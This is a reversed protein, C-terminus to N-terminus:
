DDLFRPSNAKELRRTLDVLLLGGEGDLCEGLVM